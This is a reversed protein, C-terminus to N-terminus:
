RKNKKFFLLKKQNPPQILKPESNQTNKNLSYELESLRAFFELFEQYYGEYNSGDTRIRVINSENQSAIKSKSITITITDKDYSVKLVNDIGSDSYWTIVKDSLNVFDEPLRSDEKASDGSLIYRGVVAKMLNEFVIYTQWESYTRSHMSIEFYLEEKSTVFFIDDDLAKWISLKNGEKELIITGNVKTIKFKNQEM